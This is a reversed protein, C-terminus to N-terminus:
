SFPDRPENFKRKQKAELAARVEAEQKQRKTEMANNQTKWWVIHTLLPARVMNFILGFFVIMYAKAMNSSFSGHFIAALVMLILFLVINITTALMPIELVNESAPKSIQGLPKAVHGAPKGIQGAPKGVHGDPEQGANKLDAEPDNQCKNVIQIPRVSKKIYSLTFIDLMAASIWASLGPIQYLFGILGADVFDNKTGDM